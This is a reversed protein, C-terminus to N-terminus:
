RSINWVARLIVFCHASPCCSVRARGRRARPSFSRQVPWRIWAHCNLPGMRRHLLVCSRVQCDPHALITAAKEKLDGDCLLFECDAFAVTTALEEASWERDLPVVVAGVSLLALYTKIWAYSLKGIIACHKAAYGKAAFAQSLQRVQQSLTRFSIKVSHEDKPNIRYSYAVADGYLLGVAEVLERVDRYEVSPNLTNKHNM